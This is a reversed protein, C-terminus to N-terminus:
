QLWPHGRLQVLTPRNDPDVELCRRLFDQCSESLENNIKLKDAYFKFSTFRVGRHVTNFLVVGIQFVTMSGARYMGHNRWEPPITTGYFIHYTDEREGFCSMGFDLLRVRPVDASSQILINESKIDRHFIHKEELYIAADVLQKMIIKAEKEDLSGGNVKVHDSLDRSPMPRELVLILEKDLNYWDLLSVPASTGNSEATLKLLIVVEASLEKGDDDVHKCFINKKSIHKVAVPLYDADRYGAFVSGCGGEGLKYLQFYKAEFELCLFLNKPESAESLDVKPEYAENLDLRIKKRSPGDGDTVAKRKRGRKSVDEVSTNCNERSRKFAPSGHSKTKKSSDKDM